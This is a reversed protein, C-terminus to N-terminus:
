LCFHLTTNSLKAWGTYRSTIVAIQKYRWSNELYQARVTNPDHSSLKPDCSTMPCTVMQNGIPWKGIPPGKSHLTPRYKWSNQLYQSRLTNIDGHKVM